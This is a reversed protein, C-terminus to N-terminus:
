VKGLLVYQGPNTLVFDTQRSAVVSELETLNYAQVVFDREPMAVKLADALPQWQVITQPKPRFALVAIKIPEAAHTLGSSVLAGFMCVLLCVFRFFSAPTM